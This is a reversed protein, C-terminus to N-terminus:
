TPSRQAEKQENPSLVMGQFGLECVGCSVGRPLDAAERAREFDIAFQERVFSAPLRRHATTGQFRLRTMSGMGDLQVKPRLGQSHLCLRVSALDSAYFYGPIVKGSWELWESSPPDECEVVVKSVVSQASTSKARM